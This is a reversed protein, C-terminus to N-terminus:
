SSKVLSFWNGEQEFNYHFGQSIHWILCLKAGTIETLSWMHLFGLLEQDYLSSFYKTLPMLKAGPSANKITVNFFHEINIFYTSLIVKVFTSCSPVATHELPPFSPLSPILERAMEYWVQFSICFLM